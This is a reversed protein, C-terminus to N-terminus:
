ETIHRQYSFSVDFTSIAKEAYDLSVSGIDKPWANILTYKIIPNHRGDIQTLRVDCFYDLPNGHTNEYPDHINKAWKLFAKRITGESDMNFTIMFDAFQTKSAIKYKSGQWDTEIEEFAQSPLGTSKVLYEHEKVGYFKLRDITCKFLYSRAYDRYGAMFSELNFSVM